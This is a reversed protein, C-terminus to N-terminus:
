SVPAAVPMRAVGRIAIKRRLKKGQRPINTTKAHTKRAQETTKKKELVSTLILLGGFAVKLSITLIRDRQIIARNHIKEM